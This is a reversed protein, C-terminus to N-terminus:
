RSSRCRCDAPRKSAGGNIPNQGAHGFIGDAGATGVVTWAGATSVVVTVVLPAMVKGESLGLTLTPLRSKVPRAGRMQELLRYRSM